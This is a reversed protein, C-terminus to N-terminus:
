RLMDMALRVVDRAGTSDYRGGDPSALAQFTVGSM